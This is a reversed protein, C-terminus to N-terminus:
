SGEEPEYKPNCYQDPADNANTGCDVCRYGEGFIHQKIKRQDEKKETRKEITRKVQQMAWDLKDEPMADVVENVDAGPDYPQCYMKMFMDRATDTIAPHTLIEKLAARASDVAEEKFSSLGRWEGGMSVMIKFEKQYEQLIFVLWSPALIICNGEETITVQGEELDVLLEHEVTKITLQTM